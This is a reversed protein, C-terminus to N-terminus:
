DKVMFQPSFMSLCEMTENGVEIPTNLLGGGLFDEVFDLNQHCSLSSSLCGGRKGLINPPAQKIKIGPIRVTQWLDWKTYKEISSLIWKSVKWFVRNFLPSNLFMSVLRDYINKVNCNTKM